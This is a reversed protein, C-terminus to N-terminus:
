RYDRVVRPVGFGCELAARDWKALDAAAAYTAQLFDLLAREPDADGRVRAYPLVYESLATDFRAGEPMGSAREFGPPQPYSYSYFVPEPANPGGPWFGASSVEHSYAERVVDDPLNPVGGPHLPARRGSFRTVALDFSGWFFHVPSVKGIFGTRFREFVADIRLLAHWLRRAADGDYRRPTQDQAFPVADPLENPTGHIAAPVGARTLMDLVRAHFAAITGPALPVADSKGASTRLVLAGAPFDFELDFHVDGHPIRSTTLGRPSVYLPVHWSHNTWPTLALRVKGAIQTMLHLTAFTEHDREYSLEPWPAAAAM